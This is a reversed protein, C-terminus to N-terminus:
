QRAEKKRSARSVRSVHATNGQKWERGGDLMTFIIYDGAPLDREPYAPQNLLVEEYKHTGRVGKVKILDGPNLTVRESLQYEAQRNYHIHTGCVGCIHLNISCKNLADDPHTECSVPKSSKKKGM